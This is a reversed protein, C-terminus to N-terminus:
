CTSHLVTRNRGGNKALYLADDAAEILRTEKQFASSCAIGASFSCKFSAEESQFKLQSFADRLNEIIEFAVRPTTNPMIIGFEEGGYRGILDSKRLRDTLLQALSKLVRDGMAHGYQDNVQKFLDLDLMLYSLEEHQRLSRSLESEVRRKLTIQNLLGTLGDHYMLESLARSREIKSEITCILQKNIVPKELFDDGEQFTELQIEREKETSLFVIPISFYTQHQRLVRAVELGTLHPFYYDLLILEPQFQGMLELITEPQTLIKTQMGAQRLVLSYHQALEESDDVVLVRYPERQIRQTIHDLHDVLESIDVPKELYAMGGARVAALRSVWDKRQSVFLTPIKEALLQHIERAFETGALLGEPLIIDLVLADPKEMSVM